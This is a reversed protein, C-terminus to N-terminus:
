QATTIVTLGFKLDKAIFHFDANQSKQRSYTTQM